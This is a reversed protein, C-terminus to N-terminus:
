MAVGLVGVVGKLTADGGGGGEVFRGGFMCGYIFAACELCPDTEPLEM